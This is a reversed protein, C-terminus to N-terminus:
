CTSVKHPHDPYFGRQSAYAWRLTYTPGGEHLAVKTERVSGSHALRSQYQESSLPGYPSKAKSAAAAEVSATGGHFSANDPLSAACGM